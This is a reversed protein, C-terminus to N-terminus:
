PHGKSDFAASPVSVTGASPSSLSQASASLAQAAAPASASAAPSAALVSLAAAVPPAAALLRGRNPPAVDASAPPAAPVRTAGAPAPRRHPQPTHVSSFSGSAGRHAAHSSGRRLSRTRTAPGTLLLATDPGPSADPLAASTASRLDSLSQYGIVRIFHDSILDSILGSILDSILGMGTEARGPAGCIQLQRLARCFEDTEICLEENQTIKICTNENQICFEDNECTM